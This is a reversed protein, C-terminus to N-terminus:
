TINLEVVVQLFFNCLQINEQEFVQFYLNNSYCLFNFVGFINSGCRLELWRLILDDVTKGQDTQVNSESLNRIYFREFEEVENAHPWYRACKQDMNM